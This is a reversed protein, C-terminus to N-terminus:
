SDSGGTLAEAIRWVGSGNSGKVLVTDGPALVQRVVRLAEEANECHQAEAHDLVTQYIPTAQQGVTVVVEIGAEICAKGVLRHHTESDAGLELMEGLVAVARGKGKAQALTKLTTIGSRMSDLNANYSDDIVTIESEIERVDLRHQSLPRANELVRAAQALSVGLETAATVAALANAVNHRGLLGLKVKLTESGRTMWFTPRGDGGVTVQSAYVGKAESDQRSESPANEGFYRIQAGSAMQRVKEDGCNLIGLSPAAEQASEEQHYGDQEFVLRAQQAPTSLPWYREGVYNRLGWLLEAKAQALGEVSGFGGLHAHGVMLEIAMDLPAIETLLALHGPGSAGMELVLFDTTEDARLITLPVGVENNYSKEPAIVQGKLQLLSALLDKTTTKGASGTIGICVPRRGHGKRRLAALHCHALWGLARTAEPVQVYPIGVQEAPEKREVLAAAAGARWANELYDHGDSNEGVRAVYLDGPTVERSDTVVRGAIITDSNKCTRNLAEAIWGLTWM